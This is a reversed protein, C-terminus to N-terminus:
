VESGLNTRLACVDRKFITGAEGTEHTPIKALDEAATTAKRIAQEATMGVAKPRASSEAGFFGNEAYLLM